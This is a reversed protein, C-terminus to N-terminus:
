VSLETPNQIQKEPIKESPLLCSCFTIGIFEPTVIFLLPFRIYNSPCLRLFSHKVIYLLSVLFGQNLILQSMFALTSLYNTIIYHYTMVHTNFDEKVDWVM